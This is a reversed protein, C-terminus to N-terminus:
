KRAAMCLLKGNNTAMYIRGNAAIMGDFAPASALPTSKLLSGDRASYVNLLSGKRGEFSALPDEPDIVDPLGAAFLLNTAPRSSASQALVMARIRLPVMSQWKELKQRVYGTGKEVGQGGRRYSDSASEKPLWELFGPKGGKKLFTPENDNDDAFLLYGHEAPIFLPSWQHRRYFYKVSYTTSDDFVILQGAKPSQQALYFGPWRKGYMWYIRDYGTDDLFGGTAVLHNVGMDLDGLSSGQPTKLRNLRADFKIRQLYLDKGDSVMLDNLSGEMAFPTGTDKKIDPWPGELIHSYLVKGTNTDLGYVIIGGDLFSSRGAAFYVVGDQVLVSGQVPWLSEVQEYSVIRRTEPAARFRWVLEGDDARLCYVYGDRCGFLVMGEHVTPVSDIRGGATFSWINKGKDADLCRIHHADKEAVWLRNGVIVPQSGKSNLEIEWLKSLNVPVKTKTSGSRQGDRRYMPWDDGSDRGMGAPMTDFAPGREIAADTSPKLEDAPEASLAFYGNFKVGPYCFCQDTPVYFLGNAPTAGTFCPARLWDNRMHNDGEVDVFEAGRKPLIMYRVTAKSRHCRYHHGPSILKDTTLKKRIKGTKIDRGEFSGCYVIGDIVFLDAPQMCAGAWAMRSRCQWLEKGDEASFATLFIPAAPKRGGTKKEGAPGTPKQVKRNGYFFVVGDSIVLNSIGAFTSEIVHPAHWLQKGSRIDLCIIEEMNHYIVREDRAALAYPVVRKGEQRWLQRGTEVDIAALTDDLAEKRFRVTAGISREKTIKVVLVGESLIMEDTGRTGEIAETQIEGTAADLVSVPSNLFGLTVYVLNDKAVLRRPITHHINWRNGSGTGLETQWRRMPQKWLLVGSFADRAILMCKQPLKRFVGTPGEDFITFIRGGSTVVANVSSPFEHSRCWRPGALWHLRKPPGVQRDNAVADNSADHLFHTWEDIDSPRPKVTKRWKNGNHIFAVGEPALVRLVEDMTVDGLKSAVLLNVLNSVYPLKKGNFLDATVPGNLGKSQLLKRTRAVCAANKDLGQVLYRENIHLGATLTGDGCGLHVVLGGRVGTERIIDSATEASLTSMSMFM